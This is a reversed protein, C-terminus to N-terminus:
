PRDGPSGPCGPDAVAPRRGPRVARSVPRGVDPREAGRTPNTVAWGRRRDDPTRGRGSSCGTDQDIRQNLITATVSATVYRTSSPADTALCANSMGPATGTM